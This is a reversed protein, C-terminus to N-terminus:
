INCSALRSMLASFGGWAVSVGYASTMWLPPQSAISWLQRSGNTGVGCWSAPLHGEPANFNFTLNEFGLWYGNVRWGVYNNFRCWAENLDVDKFSQWIRNQVSFGFRGDSCEGWLQNIVSLDRCPFIEINETGFWGERERGFLKLMMTRTHLDAEQWRGAALLESLQIYDAPLISGRYDNSHYLNPVLIDPPLVPALLSRISRTPSSPSPRPASSYPPMVVSQSELSKLEEDIEKIKKKCEEIRKPLAFKKEVSDTISLQLEYHARKEEWNKKAQKLDELSM